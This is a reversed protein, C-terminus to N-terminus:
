LVTVSCTRIRGGFMAPQITDPLGGLNSETVRQATWHIADPAGPAAPSPAAPGTPTPSLKTGTAAVVRERGMTPLLTNSLTCFRPITAVHLTGRISVPGRPRGPRPATLGTSPPGLIPDASAGIGWGGITPRVTNLASACLNASAVPMETWTCYAHASM